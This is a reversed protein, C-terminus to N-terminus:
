YASRSTRREVELTPSISPSTTRRFKPTFIGPVEVAAAGEDQGANIAQPVSIGGQNEQGADVGGADLVSKEGVVQDGPNAYPVWRLTGSPTKIQPM